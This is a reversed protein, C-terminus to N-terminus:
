YVINFRRGLSFNFLTNEKSYAVGASILFARFVAYYVGGGFSPYWRNGRENRMWASGVDTFAFVGVDGPLFYSRIDTLKLQAEVNTYAISSGSFRNKRYGRLFNNQGLNLAQFYDFDKNFIHGYGLRVIAIFKAPDTFAGHVAMDTTFSTLPKSSPTLGAMSSVQTLWHLGRTPLLGEGLNDILLNLKGGAYSKDAYVNTSDLGVLSPNRLVKGANDNPNNWYKFYAPGASISLVEGMRKRALIEGRAYHYRVHYFHISNDKAIKTENGIGYFNNLVPDAVEANALLDVNGLAEIFESNLALRYQGYTPAYLGTFLLKSKYPEKRFGQTIRQFGLGLILKDETNYALRFGPYLTENYKFGAIDFANVGSLQSFKSETRNSNIVLNKETSNDYIFNRVSGRINFTDNGKGGIIRVINKSKVNDDIYFNDNGNLGYLRIEKTISADFLRNYMLAASDSKNTRKFLRVSLRNGESSVKFYDNQNTGIVDVAKSIFRYYRNAVTPLDERRSKLKSIIEKGGLAYIEPPFKKVANTIVSDTLKTQLETVTKNWDNEDLKTLFIRDFDKATYQQENVNTMHMRFGQLFPLNFKSITSLFLGDSRFYAQDKDRPVPYYLKGRGTDKTGFRWQDFHRNWDGTIIDLLRARLVAPQDVRNDNDEVMYEIIQSPSKTESRDPTPYREELYCLTNGFVKRYFGFADDDPVYFLEDKAQVLNAAKALEYVTLSSYPHIASINDQVIGGRVFAKLNAPLVKEPDKKLSRLIWQKGDKDVLRLSKTLRSGGLSQITLGGKEKRLNFIKVEVPTAWEKRYNDGLFFRKMASASDFKPNAAVKVMKNYDIAVPVVSDKEIQENPFDSFNLMHASYGNKMSDTVEYYDVKVDKNKSIELTAFGRERAVYPSNKGKSVRTVKIGSGVVMYNFSSDKILQLSHEHGGTYIVNPHAKAVEQIANIMNKYLPHPLDQATGFVGRTIPYVSGILPLPVKWKPNMETLPFLHQKWTFNGGHVGYSKFTHHLAMIVLKRSNRSLMDELQTLVEAETKSECTSEIGPKEYLHLWWQTDMIIMTVGKSISIEVPGPCGGKPYFDVNAGGVRDIYQQQRVIKEWGAPGGYDWDHNGPIFYVKAKTGKAIVIQSDLVARLSDYDPSTEDPLGRYYVNDGLYVIVTKEDLVFNRRVADVVPQKHDILVGADGIIIVKAQLSDPTKKPQSM